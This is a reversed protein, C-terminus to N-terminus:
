SCREWCIPPRRTRPRPQSPLAFSGRPATSIAGHECSWDWRAIPLDTAADGAVASRLQSEAGDFDGALRMALGLDVRMPVSRSWRWRRGSRPSPTRSIRGTALVQGLAAHFRPQSPALAVARGLEARAEDLDQARPAGPAAKYRNWLNVGLNYHAEALDPLATM